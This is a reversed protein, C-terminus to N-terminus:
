ILGALEQFRKFTQNEVIPQRKNSVGASKSAMSKIESINSKPKFKTDLSQNLSEYVIKAEKVTEAKDFAKLVNLKKSESLNKSTYIKNAYLLKANLLNVENLEARLEEIEEKFDESGNEMEMEEVTEEVAEEENRLAAGAGVGLTELAEMAKRGMEGGKNVLSQLAPIITSDLADGAADATDFGEMISEDDEIDEIDIEMDDDEATTEEAGEEEFSDGPELEGAEVMDSIVSEIYQTLDEETMNELDIEEEEVDGEEGDEVEEETSEEESEDEESENLTSLLEDLNMEEMDIDQEEIELNEDLEDEQEMEELKASLMSKLHPTFTEELVSKANAIATEKVAKADAIAEKLLDRQNLM